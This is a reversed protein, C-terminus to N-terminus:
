VWTYETMIRNYWRHADASGDGFDGDLSYALAHRDIIGHHNLDNEWFWRVTEQYCRLVLEYKDDPDMQDVWEPREPDGGMMDACGFFGDMLTIARNRMHGDLTGGGDMMKDGACGYDTLYLGGHESRLVNSLKLDNQYFGLAAMRWYLELCTAMDEPAPRSVTLDGKPCYEVIVHKHFACAGEMLPPLQPDIGCVAAHFVCPGIGTQSATIMARFELLSGCPVLAGQEGTKSNEVLFVSKQGGSGIVQEADEWRGLDVGATCGMDNFYCGRYAM